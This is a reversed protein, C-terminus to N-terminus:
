RTRHTGNGVKLAYLEHGLQDMIQRDIFRTSQNVDFPPDPLSGGKTAELNTSPPTVVVPQLRNSFPTSTVDCSMSCVIQKRSVKYFIRRAQPGLNKAMENWLEIM